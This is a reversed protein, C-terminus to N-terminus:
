KPKYSNAENWIGFLRTFDHSGDNLIPIQIVKQTM